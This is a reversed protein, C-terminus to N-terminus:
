DNDKELGEVAKLLLHRPVCVNTEFSIEIPLDMIIGRVEELTAKRTKADQLKTVFNFRELQTPIEDLSSAWQNFAQVLEEDTLLREM